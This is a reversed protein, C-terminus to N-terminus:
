NISGDIAWDVHQKVKSSQVDCVCVCVSPILCTCLIVYVCKIDRTCVFVHACVCEYVSPNVLM